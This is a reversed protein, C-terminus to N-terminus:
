LCLLRPMRRSASEGEKLKKDAEDAQEEVDDFVELFAKIAQDKKKIADLSAQVLERASFEKRELSLRADKISFKSIDIM